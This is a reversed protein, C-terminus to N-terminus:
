HLGLTNIVDQVGFAGQFSSMQVDICDYGWEGDSGIRCFCKRWTEGGGANDSSCKYVSCAKHSDCPPPNVDDCPFEFSDPCNYKVEPEGTQFSGGTSNFAYSTSASGAVLVFSLIGFVVFLNRM